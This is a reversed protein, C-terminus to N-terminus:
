LYVERETLYKKLSTRIRTLRVTINKESLGVAEAIEACSEYFWYRRLFIERNKTPLTDLFAELMCTLEKAEITGEVSDPSSLTAELEDMAVEKMSNRKAANKTRCRCLSINRVIKLVFAPLLSPNAPPIANWTGLYADNVCEEADPESGLIRFSIMHFLKGYKQDLEKIGQESRAFFLAIIKEDEM